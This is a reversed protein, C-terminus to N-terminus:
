VRFPTPAGRAVDTPLERVVHPAPRAFWLDVGAAVVIALGVAGVGVVPLVLAAIAVAVLLWAARPAPSM